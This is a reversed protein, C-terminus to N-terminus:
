VNENIFVVVRYIDSNKKIGCRIDIFFYQSLASQFYQSIHCMAAMVTNVSLPLYNYNFNIPHWIM